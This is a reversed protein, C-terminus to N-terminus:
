RDPATKRLGTRVGFVVMGTMLLISLVGAGPSDDADAFYIGGIGIAVGM